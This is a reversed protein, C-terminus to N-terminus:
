RDHLKRRNTSPWGSCGLNTAFKSCCTPPTPRRARLNYRWSM